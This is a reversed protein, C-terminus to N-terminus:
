AHRDVGPEPNRGLQFQGGCTIRDTLIWWDITRITSTRSRGMAEPNHLLIRTCRLPRARRYNGHKRAPRTRPRGGKKGNARSARKKRASTAQGGLRGIERASLSMVLGPVSYNTDLVRISLAMGHPSVEVQRLQEATANALEPLTGVPIGLSYGDTFDLVFRHAPRDYWVSKAYLGARRYDESLKTVAKYQRDFEEDSMAKVVRKRLPFM